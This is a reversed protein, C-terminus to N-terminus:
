RRLGALLDVYDALRRVGLFREKVRLRAAEGLRVAKPRDEALALIADAFAGLDAPDDILVGSEGNVIQDQIGGVRSAVVPRAKWMAEAVTLGFGEALSKQLIVDARRQLANVMAGNEDLDAMPLTVLHVRRRVAAPLAEWSTAIESHVALGEPDDLVAASAPGGLVLHLDSDRLYEVFCRLVGGPDKLRDWRSIQAVLVADSPLPAGQLVEARREVRGPTGDARTYAPAAASHREELGITGLIARVTPSDIEQNKPSFPDIAPAVVWARKDDLVDWIYQRRSFVYADAQAVYRALFEWARRVVRNPRDAGIHCRWIVRVGARQLAPALGATQPDHLYVIDGERLLPTLYAISEALTAEYLRRERDDLPGGDGPDGHLNNHIRKTLEFFEARERLVAWRTDVGAGRVYPLFSRLIEAVGGGRLTSSVHWIAKGSFLRRARSAAREVEAYEDGLLEEFRDLPQPPIQVFKPRAM